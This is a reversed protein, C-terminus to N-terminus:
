QAVYIGSFQFADGASITYDNDVHPLGTGPNYGGEASRLFGLANNTNNAPVALKINGRAGSVYALGMMPGYAQTFLRCPTYMEYAASTAQAGPPFSVTIDGYGADAGSSGFTVSAYVYTLGGVFQQYFGTASGGSGLKVPGNDSKVVPTWSKQESAVPLWGAIPSYLDLSFAGTTTDLTTRPQGPYGPDGIGVGNIVPRMGGAAVAFPRCDQVVTISTAGAPVNVVALAVAADPLTPAVGSGATGTLVDLFSGKGSGLGADADEVYVYVLDIRDNTSDSPAVQVTSNGRFAGIYPTGATDSQVVFQGPSVLLQMSVPNTVSVILGAPTKTASDTGQPVVGSYTRMPGSQAFLSGLSSRADEASIGVTGDDSRQVAWPDLGRVATM